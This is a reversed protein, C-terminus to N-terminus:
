QYYADQSVHVAVYGRVESTIADVNVRYNNGYADEYCVEWCPYMEGEKEGHELLPMYCFNIAGEDLRDNEAHYNLAPTNLIYEWSKKQAEVSDIASQEANRVTVEVNKNISLYLLGDVGVMARAYCGSDYNVEAADMSKSCLLSEADTLVHGDVALPIQFIYVDNGTQYYKNWGNWTAGPYKDEPFRNVMMETLTEADLSWSIWKTGYGIKLTDLYSAVMTQASELTMFSLNKHSLSEEPGNKFYYYKYEQEFFPGLPPRTQAEMTSYELTGWGTLISSGDSFVVKEASEQGYVSNETTKSIVKKNQALVNKLTDIDIKKLRVEYEAHIGSGDETPVGSLVAPNTNETTSEEETVTETVNANYQDNCGGCILLSGMLVWLLGRKRLM